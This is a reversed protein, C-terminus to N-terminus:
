VGHTVSAIACAYIHSPLVSCGTKKEGLFLVSNKKRLHVPADGGEKGQQEGQEHGRRHDHPSAMTSAKGVEPFANM